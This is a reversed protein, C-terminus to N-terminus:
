SKGWDRFSFEPSALRGWVLDHFSEEVDRDTQWESIIMINQAAQQSQLSCICRLLYLLHSATTKKCSLIIYAQVTISM